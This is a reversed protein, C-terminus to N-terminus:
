GGLKSRLGSHQSVGLISNVIIVEASRTSAIAIQNAAITVIARSREMELTNIRGQDIIKWILPKAILAISWRTWNLIILAQKTLKEVL